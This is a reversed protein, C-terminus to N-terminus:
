VTFLGKSVPKSKGVVIYRDKGEGRSEHRLSLKEAISHVDFRQQSNLTKPFSLELKSSNQTFDFIEKELTERSYRAETSSSTSLLPEYMEKKVPKDSIGEPNEETVPGVAASDASSSAYSPDQHSVKKANSIEEKSNRTRNEITDSSTELHDKEKADREKPDSKKAELDKEKKYNKTTKTLFADEYECTYSDSATTLSDQLYEHASRVEGESSM